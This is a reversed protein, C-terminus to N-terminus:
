VSDADAVNNSVFWAGAHALLRRKDELGVCWNAHLIFPRLRSAMRVPPEESSAVCPYLVGAPFLGEPLPFINHLYQPNQVLMSRFLVQETHKLNDADNQAIHLDIMEFCEPRPSLAFFGVCFDPPFTAWPETQCAWFYHRLVDSLYPLPSRLWSVDIDAYIVPTGEALIARLAPFRYKLLRNFEQSGWEAYATPIDGDKVDVMHELIRARAGFSGALHSLEYEADAPFIIQVLRGEIGCRKISTLANEVFAALGRTAYLVITWDQQENSM